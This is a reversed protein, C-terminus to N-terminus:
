SGVLKGCRSDELEKERKEHDSAMKDAIKEKLTDRIVQCQMMMEKADEVYIKSQRSLNHVKIMEECVDEISTPHVTKLNLHFTKPMFRESILKVCPGNGQRALALADKKFEEVQESTLPTMQALM